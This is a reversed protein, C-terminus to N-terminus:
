AEAKGRSICSIASDSDEQVESSVSFLLVKRSAFNWGYSIGTSVLKSVLYHFQAGSTLTFMVLENIALGLVGLAAFIIFEVERNQVPRKKFVWTISLCYNTVLGLIFAIAAAWLYHIGALEKIAFLSAYDVLFALVGILTYRFLQVLTTDTQGVFLFALKRHM